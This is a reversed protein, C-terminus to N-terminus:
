KKKHRKRWLVSTEGRRPRRAVTRARPVRPACLSCRRFKITRAPRGMTVGTLERRPMLINASTQALAPLQNAKMRVM